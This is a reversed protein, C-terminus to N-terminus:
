QRYASIYVYAYEGEDYNLFVKCSADPNQVRWPELMEDVKDQLTIMEEETTKIPIYKNYDGNQDQYWEDLDEIADEIEEPKYPAIFTRIEIDDYSMWGSTTYAGVKLFADIEEYGLEQEESYQVWEEGAPATKVWETVAALIEEYGFLKIIEVDYKDVETNINTIWGSGKYNTVLMGNERVKEMFITLAGKDNSLDRDVSLTVNMELVDRIGATKGWEKVLELTEEISKLKTISYTYVQGDILKGQKESDEEVIVNSTSLQYLYKQVFENKSCERNKVSLELTDGEKANAEWEKVKTVFADGTECADRHMYEYYQYKTGNATVNSTYKHDKKMVEDTINFYDYRVYGERDPVPDDWTVDVMYWEGDLQVANWAHGGGNATGTVGICPIGLIDMCLQFAKRYGDCVATKYVFIGEASYSVRPITGNQYNEYDYECNLVMYDHVALEQEVPVTYKYAENLCEALGNYFPMDAESLVSMDGTKYAYEYKYYISNEPLNCTYPNSELIGTDQYFRYTRGDIVAEGKAMTGYIPDFYYRGNENESWGKIMHGQADYRVWKGYREGDAGVYDGWEGALSEQYVDKSVAKKGGDVNDLWYWANSAPDFIEKGRYSGDVSYGQRVYGEYWYDNGDINKWGFEPVEGIEYELVGTDRNFYYEKTGITAFGKAMTGYTEDFYYIGEENESWGKIMHGEEDYRVWKGYRAGDEGIYDGWPGALSEQYVDKSVAVAGKQVNDLWYWADTVPDWIEKGRYAENNEDYGQRVGNEYWYKAGNEEYWGNEPPAALITAPTAMGIAVVTCIIGLWMKVNKM